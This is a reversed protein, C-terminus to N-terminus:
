KSLSACNFFPPAQKCFSINKIRIKLMDRDCTVPIASKTCDAILCYFFLACVQNQPASDNCLNFAPTGQVDSEKCFIFRKIMPCGSNSFTTAKPSLLVRQAIQLIGLRGKRTQLFPLSCRGVICRRVHLLLCPHSTCKLCEARLVATTRCVTHEYFGPFSQAGPCHLLM